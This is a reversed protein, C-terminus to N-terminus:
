STSGPRMHNKSCFCPMPRPSLTLTLTRMVTMLSRPPPSHTCAGMAGVASHTASSASSPAGTSCMTSGVVRNSCLIKTPGKWRLYGSACIHIAGSWHLQGTFRGGCNKPMKLVPTSPTSGVGKSSSNSYSSRRGGASPTAEYTDNVSHANKCLSLLVSSTVSATTYTESFMGSTSGSSSIICLPSSPLKVIAASLNRLRKSMAVLAAARVTVESSIVSGCRLRRPHCRLASWARYKPGDLRSSGSSDHPRIVFRSMTAGTTLVRTYSFMGPSTPSQARRTPHQFKLRM